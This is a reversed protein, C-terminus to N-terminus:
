GTGRAQELQVRLAAVEKKLQAEQPGAEPLGMGNTESVTHVTKFVHLLTLGPARSGSGERGRSLPRSRLPTLDLSTVSPLPYSTVVQVQSSEKELSRERQRQLQTVEQSLTAVQAQLQLPTCLCGTSVKDM